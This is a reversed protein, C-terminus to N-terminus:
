FMMGNTCAAHTLHALWGSHNHPPRAMRLSLTNIDRYHKLVHHVSAGRFLTASRSASHVPHKHPPRAMGLSLTNINRYHKLVHHKFEQIESCGKPVSKSDKQDRKFGKQSGKAGNPGNPVPGPVPGMPRKQARQCIFDACPVM